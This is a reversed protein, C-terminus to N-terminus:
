LNNINNNLKNGDIHNVQPLNNPNPIFVKTVLRHIKKKFKKGKKNTLGVQMYGDKDITGQMVKGNKIKKFSLVRGLNSIYYINRLGDIEKWIENM